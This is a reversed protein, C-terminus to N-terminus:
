TMIERNVLELGANPEASVFCLRSTVSESEREKKRETGGERAREKLVLYVKFFGIAQNLHVCPLIMREFSCRLFRTM